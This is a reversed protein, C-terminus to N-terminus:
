KSDAGFLSQQQSKVAELRKIEAKANCALYSYFTTRSIHYTPYILNQYVWEQSVGRQKQELVINQVNLIKNLINTRNYAM